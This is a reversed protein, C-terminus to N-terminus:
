LGGGGKKKSVHMVEPPPPPDRVNRRKAGPINKNKQLICQYGTPFNVFLFFTGGVKQKAGPHEKESFSGVKPNIQGVGPAVVSSVTCRLGTTTLISRASTTDPQHYIHCRDPPKQVKNIRVNYCRAARARLLCVLCAHM